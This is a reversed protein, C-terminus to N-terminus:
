LGRELNKGVRYKNPSWLCQGNKVKTSDKPKKKRKATGRAGRKKGKKTCVGGRKWVVWRRERKLGGRVRLVEFFYQRKKTKSKRIEGGGYIGL